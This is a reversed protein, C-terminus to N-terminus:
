LEEALPMHWVLEGAVSAAKEIAAVAKDEGMLGTYRNGLAVRAGGTLTALDIMLDPKLESALVLGDAMVLRGEADTNTVEVTKGNRFTIVDTPRTASGSPMNEAICLFATVKIPLGLKAIAFTAQAITAAGAMDGKMTDMSGPTPKLSLGGTDYVVGKGVLVIPQKNKANKPKYEAVTFTPPDISAKNVALLGGMKLTEIQTEELVQVQFGAEEGLDVVAQALQEANLHSVPTNVLDRTKHVAKAIHQLEQISAKDFSKPVIVEAFVGPKPKSFHQLFRYNALLLGELFAYLDTNDGNEIKLCVVDDHLYKEVKDALIRLAEAEQGAKIEFEFHTKTKTYDFDKVEPQNPVFRLVSPQKDKSQYNISLM